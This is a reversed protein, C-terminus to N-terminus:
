LQIQARCRGPGHVPAAVDCVACRVFLVYSESFLERHTPSSSYPTCNTVGIELSIKWLFKAQVVRLKKM